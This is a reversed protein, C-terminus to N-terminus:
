KLAMWGELLTWQHCNRASTSESETHSALLIAAPLARSWKRMSSFAEERVSIVLVSRCCKKGALGEGGGGGGGRMRGTNLSKGGTKGAPTDEASPFDELLKAGPGLPMGYETQFRTWLAFSRSRGDSNM